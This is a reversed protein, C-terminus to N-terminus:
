DFALLFICPTMRLIGQHEEWIPYIEGATHGLPECEAIVIMEFLQIQDHNDIKELHKLM